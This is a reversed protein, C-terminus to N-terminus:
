ANYLSRYLLDRHVQKFTSTLIVTTSLVSTLHHVGVCDRHLSRLPASSSKTFIRKSLLWLASLLKTYALTRNDDLQHQPVKHHDISLSSQHGFISSLLKESADLPRNSETAASRSRTTPPLLRWSELLVPQGGRRVVRRCAMRLLDWM